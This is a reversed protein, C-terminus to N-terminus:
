KKCDQLLKPNSLKAFLSDLFQSSGDLTKADVDEQLYLYREMLQKAEPIKKEICGAVTYTAQLGTLYSIFINGSRNMLSEFTIQQLKNEQELKILDREKKLLYELLRLSPFSSNKCIKRNYKSTLSLNGLSTIEEIMVQNLKYNPGTYKIKAYYNEEKALCQLLTTANAFSSIIIFLLTKHVLLRRM